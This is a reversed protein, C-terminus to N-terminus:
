PCRWEPPPPSDPRETGGCRVPLACGATQPSRDAPARPPLRIRGVTGSGTPNAAPKRTFETLLRETLSQRGPAFQEAAGHLYPRFERTWYTLFGTRAIEALTDTYHDLIAEGLVKGTRRAASRAAKSLWFVNAPLHSVTSIAM